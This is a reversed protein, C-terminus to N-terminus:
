PNSVIRYLTSKSIRYKECVENRNYGKFEARIRANRGKKIDKCSYYVQNGSLLNRQTYIFAAVLRSSLEDVGGDADWGSLIILATKFLATHIDDELECQSTM